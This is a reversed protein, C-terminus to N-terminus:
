KQLGWLPCPIHLNFTKQQKHRGGWKTQRLGVHKVGTTGGQLFTLRGDNIDRRGM